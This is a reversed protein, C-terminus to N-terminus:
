DVEATKLQLETVGTEATKLQLDIVDSETSVHRLQYSVLASVEGGV